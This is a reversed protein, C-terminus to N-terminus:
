YRLTAAVGGVRSLGGIEDSFEVTASTLEARRVLENVLDIPVIENADCIPCRAPQDADGFQAEPVTVNECAQCQTGAIDADRTVLVEEVRGLKLADLM